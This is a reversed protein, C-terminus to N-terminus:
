LLGEARKFLSTTGMLVQMWKQVCAHMYVSSRSIAICNGVKSYFANM